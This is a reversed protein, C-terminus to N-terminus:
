ITKLDEISSEKPRERVKTEIVRKCKGKGCKELGILLM